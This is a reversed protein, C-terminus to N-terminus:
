APLQRPLTSGYGLLRYRSASYTVAQRFRASHQESTCGGPPLTGKDGYGTHCPPTRSRGRIRTDAASHVSESCAARMLPM